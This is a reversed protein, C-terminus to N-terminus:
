NQRGEREVELGLGALEGMFSDLLTRAGGQALFFPLNNSFLVKM